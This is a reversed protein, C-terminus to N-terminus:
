CLYSLYIFYVIFHVWILEIEWEFLLLNPWGVDDGNMYEYLRRHLDPTGVLLNVGGMM